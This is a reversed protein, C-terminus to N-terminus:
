PLGHFRAANRLIIQIGMMIDITGLQVSEPLILIYFYVGDILKAVNQMATHFVDHFVNGIVVM